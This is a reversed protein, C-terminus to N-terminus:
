PPGVFGNFKIQAIKWEGDIMTGIGEVGLRLGKRLVSDDLAWRLTRREVTFARATDGHENAQWECFLEAARDIRLAFIVVSQNTDEIWVNYARM